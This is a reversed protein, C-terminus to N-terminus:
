PLQLIRLPNGLGLIAHRGKTVASLKTHENIRVQQLVVLHPSRCSRPIVVETSRRRVNNANGATYDSIELAELM